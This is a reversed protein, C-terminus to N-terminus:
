LAFYFFLLDLLTVMVYGEDHVFILLFIVVELELMFVFNFIPSSLLGLLWWIRQVFVNDIYILDERGKVTSSLVLRRPMAVSASGAACWDMSGSWGMLTVVFEAACYCLEWLDIDNAGVCWWLVFYKRLM